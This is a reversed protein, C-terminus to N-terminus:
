VVPGVPLGDPGLCGSRWLDGRPGIWRRLGTQTEPGRCLLLRDRAVLVLQDRGVGTPDGLAVPAGPLSLPELRTGTKTDIREVRDGTPALLEITGSESALLPPWHSSGSEIPPLRTRWREVGTELDFAVVVPGWFPANILYPVIVTGGGAPAAIALPAASADFLARAPDNAEFSWSLPATGLNYRGVQATATLAGGPGFIALRVSPHGIKREIAAVQFGTQGPRTIIASPSAFDGRYSQLAPGCISFGIVGAADVLENERSEFRATHAGVRRGGADFLAGAAVILRVGEREGVCLTPARRDWDHGAQVPRPLATTFRLEGRRDFSVLADRSAAYLEATGDGDLDAALGSELARDIERRWVIEGGGDFGTVVTGADGLLGIYPVEPWPTAIVRAPDIPSGLAVETELAFAPAPGTRALGPNTDPVAPDADPSRAVTAALRSSSVPDFLSEPFAPAPCGLAILRETVEPMFPRADRRAATMETLLERLPPPAAAAASLDHRQLTLVRAVMEAPNAALLPPHGAGLEFLTIGLAYVDTRADVEGRFVEPAMYAMTGAPPMPSGVDTSADVSPLSIGFDILKVGSRTFIANAPKVDRHLVHAAHIAALGRALQTGLGAVERWDLAGRHLRYAALDPGDCLETVVFAHQDDIGGDVVTAVHPSHIRRALDLENTFRAADVDRLLAVAVWEGSDQDLARWVEKMGGTGLVRDLQYRGAVTEGM